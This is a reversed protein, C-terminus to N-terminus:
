LDDIFEFLRYLLVLFHLVSFDVRRNQGVQDVSQPLTRWDPLLSCPFLWIM